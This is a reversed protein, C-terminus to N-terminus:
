LRLDFVQYHEPAGMESGNGTSNTWEHDCSRYLWSDSLTLVNDWFCDIAYVM